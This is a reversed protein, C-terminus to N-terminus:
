CSRFRLIEYFTSFHALHEDQHFIRYIQRPLIHSILSTGTTSYRTFYAIYKDHQFTHFLRHVQRESIHSILSTGTTSFRTFYAIYRDHQLTHFLRHVQRASVHSILSTGTTSFCALYGYRHFMYSVQRPSLFSLMAIQSISSHPSFNNERFPVTTTIFFHSSPSHFLDHQPLVVLVTRSKSSYSICTVCLFPSLTFVRTVSAIHPFCYNCLPPV